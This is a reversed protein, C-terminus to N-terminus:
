EKMLEFLKPIKNFLQGVEDKSFTSTQNYQPLVVYMMTKDKNLYIEMRKTM